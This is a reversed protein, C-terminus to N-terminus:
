SSQSIEHPNEKTLHKYSLNLGLGSLFATMFALTAIHWVPNFCAFISIGILSAFIYRNGTQNLIQFQAKFLLFLGIFSCGRWLELYENHAQNFSNHNYFPFFISFAGIGQGTVLYSKDIGPFAPYIFDHIILKWAELRGSSQIHQGFYNPHVWYIAVVIALIVMVAVFSWIAVMKRDTIFYLSLVALALLGSRNGTLLVAVIALPALWSRFRLMFPFLMVMLASAYVPQSIFGGVEPNRSLHDYSLEDTIRYIQDMGLRQMIIYVSIITGAIALTKFIGELEESLIPMSYMAMFLGFFLVCELMPKFNFIGPDKPTFPGEVQLNPCHFSSFIIFFLLLGLWIVPLTKFGHRVLVYGTILLSMLYVIFRGVSGDLGAVFTVTSPLALMILTDYFLVLWLSISLLNNM